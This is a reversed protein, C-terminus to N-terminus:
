VFSKADSINSFFPLTLSQVLVVNIWKEIQIQGSSNSTYYAEFLWMNGDIYINGGISGFLDPKFLLRQTM